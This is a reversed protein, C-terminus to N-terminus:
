IACADCARARREAEGRRRAEGGRRSSSARSTPLVPARGSRGCSVSARPRSSAWRGARVEDRLREIPWAAYGAVFSFADASIEGADVRRQADVPCGGAYVGPQVEQAGAVSAADHLATVHPGAPGGIRLTHNVFSHLRPRAAPAM